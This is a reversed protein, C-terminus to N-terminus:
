AHLVACRDCGFGQDTCLCFRGSLQGCWNGRSQDNAEHRGGGVRSGKSASCVSLPIAITQADSAAVSRM